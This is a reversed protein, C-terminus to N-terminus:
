SLLNQYDEPTDIDLAAEPFPLLKIETPHAMILKRAGEQGKLSLLAGFLQKSFLAPVGAVGNYQAAIIPAHTQVFINIITQLFQSTVLPQDCLTILAAEIDPTIKALQSIGEHISSAMGSEWVANHALVVPLDSIEREVLERNAGTVVIVSSCNTDLATETSRRLLSRGQFPLLQKPTGM